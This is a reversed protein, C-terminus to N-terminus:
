QPRPEPARARLLADRSGQAMGPRVERHRGTANVRDWYRRIEFDRGVRVTQPCIIIPIVGPDCSNTDEVVEALVVSDGAPTPEETLM